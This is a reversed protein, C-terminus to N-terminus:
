SPFQFRGYAESSTGEFDFIAECKEADISIKLRVPSGDTYDVAVLDAALNWM